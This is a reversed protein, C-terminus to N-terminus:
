NAFAAVRARPARLVRSRPELMRASAIARPKLRHPQDPAELSRARSGGAGSRSGPHRACDRHRARAPACDQTGRGAGALRERHAANEGVLIRAAMAASAARDADIRPPARRDVPARPWCRAASACATRRPRTRRISTVGGIMDGRRARRRPSRSGRVISDHHEAGKVRHSRREVPQLARAHAAM